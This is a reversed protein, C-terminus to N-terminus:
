SRAWALDRGILLERVKSLHTNQMPITLVYLNWHKALDRPEPADDHTMLFDGAIDAVLSFLRHHDLESHLYLRKGARKGRATYPPDVFYVASTLSSSEELTAM